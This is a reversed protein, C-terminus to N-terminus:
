IKCCIYCRVHIHPLLSFTLLIEAVDCSAAVSFVQTLMVFKRYTTWQGLKILFVINRLSSDTETM